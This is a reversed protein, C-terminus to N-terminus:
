LGMVLGMYSPPAKGPNPLDKDRLGVTIIGVFDTVELAEWSYYKNHYKIIRLSARM